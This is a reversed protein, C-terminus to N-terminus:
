DGEPLKSAPPPPSRLPTHADLDALLTIQAATVGVLLTRDRVRLVALRERTGLSTIGLVRVREDAGGRALQRKRKWVYLV